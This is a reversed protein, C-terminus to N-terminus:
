DLDWIRKRQSAQQLVITPQESKLILASGIVLVDMDTQLFCDIANQPSEVIPEGRVNFSTNVLVPVKTRNFFKEMVERIPNDRNVTQIRASNDVHTVAPISSRVRSVWETLSGTSPLTNDSNLLKTKKVPATFLMYPAEQNAPWEFWEHVKNDLVMPAFPRFSERKKIKLNLRKQMDQNRSDAIISRGGLARPGFEMKGQFWGIVKGSELFDVVSTVLSSKSSAMQFVLNNNICISKIEEDSYSTGLFASQMQWRYQFDNKNKKEIGIKSALIAAGLAGGADGAAPQVFFNEHPVFDL